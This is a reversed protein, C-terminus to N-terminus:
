NVHGPWGAPCQEGVVGDGRALGAVHPSCGQLTLVGSNAQKNAHIAPASAWPAAM